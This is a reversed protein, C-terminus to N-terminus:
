GKIKYTEISVSSFVLFLIALAVTNIISYLLANNLIDIHMFLSMGSGILLATVYSAAFGMVLVVLTAIFKTVKKNM